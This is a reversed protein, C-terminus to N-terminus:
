PDVPKLRCRGVVYDAEQEAATVENTLTDGFGTALHSRHSSHFFSKKKPKKLSSMAKTSAMAKTGRKM